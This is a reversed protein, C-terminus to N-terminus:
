TSNHRHLKTRRGALQHWCVRRSSSFAFNELIYVLWLTLAVATVMHNFAPTCFRWMIIEPWQLSCDKVSYMVVLLGRCWLEAGAAFDTRSAQCGVSGLRKGDGDYIDLFFHLFVADNHGSCSLFGCATESREEVVAENLIDANSKSWIKALITSM